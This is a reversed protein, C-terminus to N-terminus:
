YIQPRFPVFFTRYFGKVKVLKTQIVSPNQSRTIAEKQWRGEKVFIASLPEAVSSQPYLIIM